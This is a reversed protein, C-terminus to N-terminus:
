QRKSWRQWDTLVLQEPLWGTQSASLPFDSPVKGKLMSELIFSGWSQDGARIWQSLFRADMTQPTLYLANIPKLYDNVAFFDEHLNRDKPDPKCRLTLWISQRQGYWAMAWPVDSMVLESEKLWEGITQIGPPYYPPYVVPFTKPPLFTFIMPLCAILSFIGVIIYRLQPFPLEILDLLLFFLSVGYILALPFLLILLNESNIDLSDESLQTRGMAQIVMLVALSGLLFYRLRKVTPNRFAVLLGVLFFATVWNGGLKPLDTQFIQRLNSMLKFWFPLLYLRSFDPELSRELRHEPFLMTNEMVSFGATGFPMGSISYNRAMWPTLAGLFMVLAILTLQVRQRGGFV